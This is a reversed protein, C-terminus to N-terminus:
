QVLVQSLYVNTVSGTPMLKNVDTRITSKLKNLGTDNRLQSTTFQRMIENVQDDIQNEMLTIEKTTSKNDAQLTLTFQIIGSANLNTTMEPLTVQLESAQKATLRVPKGKSRSPSHHKKLYTIAGVGVGALVVIVLVAIMM